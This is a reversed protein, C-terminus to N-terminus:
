QENREGGMDKSSRVKKGGRIRSAQFNIPRQPAESPLDRSRGTPTKYPLKQPQSCETCPLISPNRSSRNANSLPM